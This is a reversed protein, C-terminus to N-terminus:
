LVKKNANEYFETLINNISQATLLKDKTFAQNEGVMLSTEIEYMSPFFGSYHKKISLIGADFTTV